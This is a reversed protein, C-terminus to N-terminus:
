DEYIFKECEEKNHEDLSKYGFSKKNNKFYSPDPKLWENQMAKELCESVILGAKRCGVLSVFLGDIGKETSYPQKKGKIKEDMRYNYFEFIKDKIEIFNNEITKQQLYASFSKKKIKKKEKSKPNLILPNTTTDKQQGKVTRKSDEKVWLGKDIFHIAQEKVTRKSDKIHGKVTRIGEIFRRTKNRSWKWLMAYGSISGVKDRDADLQYSFMAEIMSFERKIYKFEQALYKDLPVWKTGRSM